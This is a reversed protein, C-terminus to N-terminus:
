LTVCPGNLKQAINSVRIKAVHGCRSTAVEFDVDCRHADDCVLGRFM